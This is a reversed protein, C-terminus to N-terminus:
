RPHPGWGAPPLRWWEESLQMIWLPKLQRVTLFQQLTEVDPADWEFLLKGEMAEGKWFLCRVTPDNRLADVFERLERYELRPINHQSLYHPM